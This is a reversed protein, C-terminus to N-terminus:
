LESGYNDRDSLVALIFISLVTLFLLELSIGLIPDM